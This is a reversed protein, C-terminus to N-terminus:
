EGGKMKSPSELEGSLLADYIRTLTTMGLSCVGGAENCWESRLRAAKEEPTEVPEINKISDIRMSGDDFQLCVEDKYVGIIKCEYGDGLEVPYASKYAIEKVIVGVDPLRGAKKDEWTWRNPEPIIRRMAFVPRDCATNRSWALIQDFLLNYSDFFVIVDAYKAVSVTSNKAKNFLNQDGFIPEYKM